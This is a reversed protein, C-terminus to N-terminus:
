RATLVADGLRVEDGDRLVRDVKTPPFLTEPDNAYQFDSKGGSEVVPVDGDMVMYKAGTLQKITDSAACHDYHAHSILLIKIDNFKFGLSEVSARILPVNAELDSNILIHGEPTTILYNALGRSGVYYLNGAIRFAPFPETWDNQPSPKGTAFVVALVVLFTSSLIGCRRLTM